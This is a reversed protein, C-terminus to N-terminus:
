KSQPMRSFPKVKHFAYIHLDPLALSIQSSFDRDKCCTHASVIHRKVLFTDTHHPKVIDALTWIICDRKEPTRTFIFLNDM